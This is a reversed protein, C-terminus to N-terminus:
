GFGKSLHDSKFPSDDEDFALDGDNDETVEIVIEIGNM